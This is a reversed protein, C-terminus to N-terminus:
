PKPIEIPQLRDWGNPIIWQIVLVRNWRQFRAITQNAHTVQGIVDESQAVNVRQVDKRLQTIAAEQSVYTAYNAAAGLALFLTLMFAAVFVAAAADGSMM